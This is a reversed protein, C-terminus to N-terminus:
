HALLAFGRTWSLPTNQVRLTASLQEPSLRLGAKGFLLTHIFAGNACATQAFRHRPDRRIFRTVRNAYAEEGECQRQLTEGLSAPDTLAQWDSLVFYVSALGLMPLPAEGARPGLAPLGFPSLVAEYLQSCQEFSYRGRAILLDAGDADFAALGGTMGRNDPYCREESGAEQSRALRVMTRRAEDQGLGLWSVSVVQHARGNLRVTTTTTGAPGHGAYALQASAGGVEIIAIPSPSPTAALAGALDNVDVWAYVGELHGSLTESSRVTVGSATLTRRASRYIAQSATPHDAELRRMGATALLHVHVVSREIKLSELRALLRDLLPTLGRPGAEDPNREFSSLAEGSRDEFLQRVRVAGETAIREYLHVRSGSSGADIVALYRTGDTATAQSLLLLTIALGALGARLLPHRLM